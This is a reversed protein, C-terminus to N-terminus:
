GKKRIKKKTGVSGKRSSVFVGHSWLFPLQCLLFFSHTCCVRCSVTCVAQAFSAADDCLPLSRALWFGLVNSFVALVHTTPRSLKSTMRCIPNPNTTRQDVYNNHVRATSATSDCCVACKDKKKQQQQIKKGSVSSFFAKCHFCPHKTPKQFLPFIRINNSACSPPALCLQAACLRVPNSLLRVQAPLHRESRCSSCTCTHTHTHTPPHTHTHTHIRPHPSTVRHM